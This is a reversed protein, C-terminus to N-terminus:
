TNAPPSRRCRCTSKRPAASADAGAPEVMAARRSEASARHRGPDSRRARLRGGPHAATRDPQVRTRGDAGRRNPRSSRSRRCRGCATSARRASRSRCPTYDPVTLERAASDIVQGGAGEVVMRLELPGPPADFSDRRGPWAWRPRRAPHAAAQEPVRGRFLPRGDRRSPRSRWARRPPRWPASGPDAARTGVRVHRADRRERRARALGSIRRGAAPPEALRKLATTM